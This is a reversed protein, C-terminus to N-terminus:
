DVINKGGNEMTLQWKLVEKKRHKSVPLAKGNSMIIESSHFECVYQYNIIYSKHIMMFGKAKIQEFVNDMTGYFEHSINNNDMIIIKRDQCEFYLIEKIKIWYSNHGSKYSFFEGQDGFMKIYKKMVKSIKEFLVPKEIFDLPHFEFLQRDYGNKGSVFIIQIVDDRLDDRIYKGVSIGNGKEMEIDLFIMDFYQNETLSTCLDNGSVFVEIEVELNNEKSYDLILKELNACVKNEDDCVAIRIM